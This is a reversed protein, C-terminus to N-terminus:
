KSKIESCGTVNKESKVKHIIRKLEKTPRIKLDFNENNLVKMGLRSVNYGHFIVIHIGVQKIKILYKNTVLAGALATWYENSKYKGSGYLESKRLKPLLLKSKSGRLLRCSMRIGAYPGVVKIVKLLVQADESFDIESEMSTKKDIKVIFDKNKIVKIGRSNVKYGRYECKNIGVHKIEDLYKNAVLVGALAIWHDKSKEKGSGHLESNKLKEWMKEDTSGALLLCSMSIGAKPGVFYIAKLLLRADESFDMEERKISRNCDAVEDDSVFPHKYVYTKSQASLPKNILSPVAFNKELTVAYKDINKLLSRVINKLIAYEM